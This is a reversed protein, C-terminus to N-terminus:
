KSCHPHGKERLGEHCAGLPELKNKSRKPLIDDWCSMERLLAQTSVGSYTKGRGVALGYKRVELGHGM